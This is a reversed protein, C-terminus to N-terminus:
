VDRSARGVTPIIAYVVSTSRNRPSDGPYVSAQDTASGAPSRGGSPRRADARDDNRDEGPRMEREHLRHVRRLGLRMSAAARSLVPRDARAARLEHEDRRLDLDPGLNRGLEGLQGIAVAARLRHLLRRIRLVVHRERAAVRRLLDDAVRGLLPRLGGLLRARRGLGVVAGVAARRGIGVRQAQRARRGAVIARLSGEFFGVSPSGAGPTILSAILFTWFYECPSDSCFTCPLPSKPGDIWNSVLPTSKPGHSRRKM